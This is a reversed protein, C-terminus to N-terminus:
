SFFCIGADPLFAPYEQHGAHNKEIAEHTEAIKGKHLTKISGHHTKAEKLNKGAEEAHKKHEEKSKSQGSAIANAHEKGKKHHEMLKDHHEKESAATQANVAVISILLGTALLSLFKM